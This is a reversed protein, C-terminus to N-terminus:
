SSQGVPRGQLCHARSVDGFACLIHVEKFEACDSTTSTAGVDTVSKRSSGKGNALGDLLGYIGGFAKQILDKFALFVIKYFIVLANKLGFAM